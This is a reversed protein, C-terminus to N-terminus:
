RLDDGDRLAFAGAKVLAAIEKAYKAFQSPVLLRAGGAANAFQPGMRNTNANVIVLPIGESKLRAGLVELEELVQSRTVEVLEAAGAEGAPRDVQRAVYAPPQVGRRSFETRAVEVAVDTLFGACWREM